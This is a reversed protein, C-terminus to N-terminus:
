DTIIYNFMTDNYVRFCFFDCNYTFKNLCLILPM